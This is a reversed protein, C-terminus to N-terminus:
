RDRGGERGGERQRDTQRDTQGGGLSISEGGRDESSVRLARNVMRTVRHLQQEDVREVRKIDSVSEVAHPSSMDSDPHM